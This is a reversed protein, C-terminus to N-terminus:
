GAERCVGAALSGYWVPGVGKRRIAEALRRAEGPHRDAKNVFYRPRVGQPVKALYGRPSTLVEAIFTEGLPEDEGVNWLRRFLEPRHVRGGAVTEGVADAGVLIVVHTAFSPVRPDRENHAKLPLNRAGDCEFICLDALPLMERLEQEGVGELKRQNVARRMVFLPNRGPFRAAWGGPGTEELFVAADGRDRGSLTISTLLVRPFCRAYERGLRKLLSTKGGGGLIAICAGGADRPDSGIIDAFGSM